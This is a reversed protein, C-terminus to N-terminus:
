KKNKKNQEVQLIFEKLNSIEVIQWNGDKLRRMKVDLVIEQQDKPLLFKIGVNAIDGDQKSYALGKFSADDLGTQKAMNKVSPAPSTKAQAQGQAEGPREVKGTEVYRLISDKGEAVMMGKFLKALGEVFNRSFNDNALKEDGAIMAAIMDDYGHALLSDLDVHKKFTEVDHNVVATRVTNLSHEPTKTFYLFYWAVAIIAIALVTVAFMKIKNKKPVVPAVPTTTTVLEATQEQKDMNEM